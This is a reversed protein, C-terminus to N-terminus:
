NRTARRPKPPRHQAGRRGPRPVEDVAIVGDAREYLAHGRSCYSSRTSMM